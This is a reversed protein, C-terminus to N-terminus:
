SDPSDDVRVAVHGGQRRADHLFQGAVHRVRFGRGDVVGWFFEGLRQLRDRDAEALQAGGRQSPEPGYPLGIHPERKITQLLAANGARADEDAHGVM